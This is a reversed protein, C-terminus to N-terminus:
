SRKSPPFQQWGHRSRWTGSGQPTAFSCGRLLNEHAKMLPYQQRYLRPCPQMFKPAKFSCTARGRLEYARLCDPIYQHPESSQNYKADRNPRWKHCALRALVYRGFRHLAVVERQPSVYLICTSTSPHKISLRWRPVEQLLVKTLRGLEILGFWDHNQDAM